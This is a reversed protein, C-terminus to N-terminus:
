CTFIFKISRNQIRFDATKLELLHAYGSLTWRVGPHAVERRAGTVGQLTHLSAWTMTRMKMRANGHRVGHSSNRKPALGISGCRMRKHVLAEGSCGDSPRLRACKRRISTYETIYSEPYTDRSCRRSERYGEWLPFTPAVMGKASLNLGKCAPSPSSLFSSASFSSSGPEM